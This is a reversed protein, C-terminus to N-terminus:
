GTLPNIGDQAQNEEPVNVTIQRSATIGKTPLELYYSDEAVAAAGAGLVCVVAAALAWKTM